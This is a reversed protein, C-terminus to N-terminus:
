KGSGGGEWGSRQAITYAAACGVNQIELSAVNVVDEFDNFKVANFDLNGIDIM